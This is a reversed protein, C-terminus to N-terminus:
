RHVCSHRQHANAVFRCAPPERRDASTRSTASCPAPHRRLVPEGSVSLGFAAAAVAGGFLKLARRRSVGGALAKSFEEFKEDSV